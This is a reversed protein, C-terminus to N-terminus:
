ADVVALLVGTLAKLRGFAEALDVDDTLDSVQCKNLEALSERVAAVVARRAGATLDVTSERAAAPATTPGTNAPPKTITATSM